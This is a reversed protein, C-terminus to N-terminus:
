GFTLVVDRRLVQWTLWGLGVLFAWWSLGADLLRLSMWNGLLLALRAWGFPSGWSLFDMKVATVWDIAERTCDSGLWWELLCRLMRLVAWSMSPERFSAKVPMTLAAWKVM